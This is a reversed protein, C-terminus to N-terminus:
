TTKRAQREKLYRMALNVALTVLVMFCGYGLFFGPLTMFNHLGHPVLAMLFGFTYWTSAQISPGFTSPMIRYTMLTANSFLVALLVLQAIVFSTLAQVGASSLNLALILLTSVLILVMAVRLVLYTMGMLGRESPDITGDKIAYFFNLIALTSSGVGLSVSMAQLIALGITVDTM